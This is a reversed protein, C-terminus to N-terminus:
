KLLQALAKEDVIEIALNQAKDLKSGAKDGAILIDTKNSVSGTVKAGLQQLQVKLESRSYNEFSGTIVITKGQLSLDRPDQLNIEQWKIGSDLLKQIIDLHHQQHFFDYIRQAVVPGIDDITQLYEPDAKMIPSLEKFFNALSLATTEGVERIGLAYIFRALTTQKSNEIAILLNDVSKEGMRELDLLSSRQLYYIDSVNEILKVDSLQEVLKDGLGDIDMAKRAVFHKIAQKKQAACYLGASCRLKAEDNLQVAESGCVPCQKPMEFVQSNEPRESLVPRVVEPIVDGARRVIVLDNVRIGKRNIEDQNHLTANTVTVGGVFVPELRAVPTLAGTRGVQVDIALLRTSVEQAPFKVAIAWRPARSIFGLQQQQSFQNIKLVVGDIEYALNERRSMIDKYYLFCQQWDDLLRIEPCIRIGWQQLQHLLSYYDTHLATHENEVFGIGYCYFALPRNATIAPDLQRLSGAAANRPNAFLKEGNQLQQANLKKFGQKPMYVEGRVELVEPFGSGQLQICISAITRINHTVDEGTKGDGRTAASVLLGKEYRLSIALGDLKPEAVYQYCQQTLFGQVRQDFELLDQESFANNLSLMPLQHTIQKFETLPKDGVRQTPSDALILSPNQQELTELQSFLVDYDHDPLDPDDLVYYRYSHYNLKKTLNSIKEAITM